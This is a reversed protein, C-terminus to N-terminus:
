RRTGLLVPRHDLLRGPDGLVTLPAVPGQAPELGGVDVHLAQLVQQALLLPAHARQAALGAGGLAM